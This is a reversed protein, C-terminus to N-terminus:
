VLLAFERLDELVAAFPSFPKLVAHYAAPVAKRKTPVPNKAINPGIPKISEKPAITM